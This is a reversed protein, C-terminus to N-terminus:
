VIVYLLPLGLKAEFWSDVQAGDQARPHISYLVYGFVTGKLFLPSVAM